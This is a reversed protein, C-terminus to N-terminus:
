FFKSPFHNIFKVTKLAQNLVIKLNEPTTKAVLAECSISLHAFKTEPTVKKIQSILNSNKGTLVWAGDSCIAICKNWAIDNKSMFNDIVKCVEKTTARIM